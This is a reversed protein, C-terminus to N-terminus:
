KQPTARAAAKLRETQFARNGDVHTDYHNLDVLGIRGHAAGIALHRGDRSFSVNFTETRDFADISALGIGASVDWLGVFGDRAATAAFEPFGPRHAVDSVLTNHVMITRTVIGKAPDIVNLRRQWDGVLLSDGRDTFSVTWPAGPDTSVRAPIAAGRTWLYVGRDRSTGVLMRSDPSFRVGVVQERSCAYRELPEGSRSDVLELENAANITALVSGDASWDLSSASVVTRDAIEICQLTQLENIRIVGDDSAVALRQGDPSFRLTRVRSRHAPLERILSGDERDRLLVSGEEDGSAVVRGDPSLAAACRGSHGGLIRVGPSRTEALRLMGNNHGLALRSGDPSAEVNILGPHVAMSRRSNGAVDWLEVSWWGSSALTGDPLYELCTVAGNPTGLTTQAGSAIDHIYIYRERGATAVQRGDPSLAITQVGQPHPYAAIPAQVDQGWVRVTDDGGVTAIRSGDSSIRIQLVAGAHGPVERVDTPRQPDLTHLRGDQGGVILRPRKPDFAASRLTLGHLVHAKLEGTAADWLRLGDSAVTALLAGEPSVAIQMTEGSGAQFTRRPTLTAADWIAVQGRQSATFIRDGAPSWRVGRLADAHAQVTALQPHRSYLEWLAWRAAANRPDKLYEPWLLDEANVLNGDRGLLRGREINSAALQKRLDVALGDSRSSARLAWGALTAALVVAGTAAIVLGRYRRLRRTVLALASAERAAIPQGALYRRIDEALAIASQYRRSKDKELATAVITDLDGRLSRDYSALRPASEDRIIRAVHPISKGSTPHPLEGTLLEFLMVGLAYVDCRTDIDDHDGAVQEPSMYPLTGVLQGDRTHMSIDREADLARAVGFDLVKPQGREDVLVNGPKLDRHIVGRQHAHEVAECVRVILELRERADLRRRQAYEALPPGAVLEMAIFPLTGAPGQEATGAEYVQAIGPHHLRGLLEAEHEFRRVLSAGALSRRIIKLAVTRQPRQQRALYVDAMGGAGLLALVTYSGVRDGPGITFRAPAAIEHLDAPDLFGATGEHHDLLSRVEALLSTDRGCREQLIEARRSPEAEVLALFIEEAPALTL